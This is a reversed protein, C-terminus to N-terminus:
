FNYVKGLKEQSHQELNKTIKADDRLMQKFLLNKKKHSRNINRECRKEEMRFKFEDKAADMKMKLAGFFNRAIHCELM